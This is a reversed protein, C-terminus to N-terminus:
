NSHERDANRIEDSHAASLVDVMLMAPVITKLASATEIGEGRGFLVTGILIPFLALEGAVWDFYSEAYIAGVLHNDGKAFARLFAALASPDQNIHEFVRNASM